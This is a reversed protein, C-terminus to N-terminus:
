KAEGNPSLNNIDTEIARIGDITAELESSLDAIRSELVAYSRVSDRILAVLALQGPTWAPDSALRALAERLIGPTQDPRCSALLVLELDWRPDGAVAALTRLRDRQGEVPLDCLQQRRVLWAEVGSDPGAAVAARQEPAAASQPLGAQCGALLAALLGPMVRKIMGAKVIGSKM